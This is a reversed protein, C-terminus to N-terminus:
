GLSSFVSDGACIQPGAPYVTRALHVRNGMAHLLLPCIMSIAGNDEKLTEGALALGRRKQKKEGLKGNGRCRWCRVTIAMVGAVPVARVMFVLSRGAASDIPCGETRIM